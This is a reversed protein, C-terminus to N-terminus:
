CRSGNGRNVYLKHFATRFPTQHLQEWRFLGSGPLTSRYRERGSSSGEMHQLVPHLTRVLLLLVPGALGLLLQHRHAEPQQQGPDGAPGGGLVAAWLRGCLRRVAVPAGGGPAVGPVDRSPRLSGSLKEVSATAPDPFVHACRCTAESAASLPLARLPRM